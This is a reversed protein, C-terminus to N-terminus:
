KKVLGIEEDLFEMLHARDLPWDIKRGNREIEVEYTTEFLGKVFEWQSPRQGQANTIYNQAGSYYGRIWYYFAHHIVEPTIQDGQMYFGLDEFLDLIDDIYLLSRDERILRRKDENIEKLAKAARSRIELTEECTFIDQFKVAWTPDYTRRRFEARWQLILLVVGIAAITLLGWSIWLPIHTRDAGKSSQNLVAVALGIM